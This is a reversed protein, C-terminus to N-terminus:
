RNFIDKMRDFINKEKGTPTPKFNESDRLKQLIDKEERNLRQPTWTNIHVMLDGRNYGNVDPLGKGRLRLTRGSQTGAEIKIKAKGKVMPIEVTTGLAADPLSIFQDYHLNQGDRTLFDHPIEEIAILLDGAPGDMPGANGMGRMSLQMGEEVGEPINIEIIEEKRVLGLDDAERPKSSIRQGTGQCHPCSSSTQMQGLITNTVRTVQGTGRCNKCSSYRVGEAVAQKNVKIKKTVGESIEELTLKVKIRLNSGKRQSSRGRSGGFGGFSGGFASGFIDGFNNFIDEMNMHSSGGGGGGNVGAHGFQDYRQRKDADSLVEYAEAAEKFKEEAAKDEPNKDPHYKIAMKRYSKKIENTGANKPVGLVEYYDRKSM